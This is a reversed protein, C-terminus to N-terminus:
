NYSQYYGNGQFKDLILYQKDLSFVDNCFKIDPHHENNVFNEETSFSVSIWFTCQTGNKCGMWSLMTQVQCGFALEVTQKNVESGM